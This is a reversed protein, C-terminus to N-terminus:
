RIPFSSRLISIPFMALFTAISFNEHSAIALAVISFTYLVQAALLVELSSESCRNESELCGLSIGPTDPTDNEQLSAFGILATYARKTRSAM